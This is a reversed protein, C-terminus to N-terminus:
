RSVYWTFGSGSRESDRAEQRRTRLMRRGGAGSEIESHASAFRTNPGDLGMGPRHRM